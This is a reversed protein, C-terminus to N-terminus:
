KTLLLFTISTIDTITGFGFDATPKTPLENISSCSSWWAGYPKCIKFTTNDVLQSKDFYGLNGLLFIICAVM